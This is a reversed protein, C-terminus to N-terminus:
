AEQLVALNRNMVIAPEGIGPADVAAQGAIREFSSTRASPVSSFMQGGLAVPATLAPSM